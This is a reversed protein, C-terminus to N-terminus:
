LEVAQGARIADAFSHIGLQNLDYSPTGFAQAQDPIYALARNESGLRFGKSINAYITNTPDVDGASRSNRRLHM